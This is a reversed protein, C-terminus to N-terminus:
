RSGAASNLRAEAEYHELTNPGFYHWLEFHFVRSRLYLYIPYELDLQAGTIEEHWQGNRPGVALGYRAAAPLEHDALLMRLNEFHAQQLALRGQNRAAGQAAFDPGRLTNDALIEAGTRASAVRANLAAIDAAYVQAATADYRTAITHADTLFALFTQVRSAPLPGTASARLDEGYTQGVALALAEGCHSVKLWDGAGKATLTFRAFSQFVAVSAPDIALARTISRGAAATQGAKLQTAAEQVLSDASTTYINEVRVQWDTAEDPLNHDKAYQELAEMAEANEPDVEVVRKWLAVAKDDQGIWQFYGAADNMGEVTEGFKEWAALESRNADSINAASMADFAKAKKLEEDTPGRSFTVLWDPTNIVYFKTSREQAAAQQATLGSANLIISQLKTFRPYAPLIKLGQDAMDLADKNQNDQEFLWAKTALATVNRPDIALAENALRMATIRDNEWEIPVVSGEGYKKKADWYISTALDAYPQANKPDAEIAAARIRLNDQYREQPYKRDLNSAKVLEAAMPVLTQVDAGTMAKNFLDDLLKAATQTSATCAAIEAAHARQFDAAARPDLSQAIALDAKMRPISGLEGAVLGRELYGSVLDPRRMLVEDFYVRADALDGTGVDALAMVWIFSSDAGVVPQMQRLLPLAAAAHGTECDEAAQELLFPLAQAVTPTWHGQELTAAASRVAGADIQPYLKQAAAVRSRLIERPSAESSHLPLIPEPAAAKVPVAMCLALAALPWLSHM